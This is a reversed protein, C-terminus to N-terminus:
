VAITPYTQVALLLGARKEITGCNGKSFSVVVVLLLRILAMGGADEGVGEESELGGWGM